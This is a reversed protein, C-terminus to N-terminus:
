GKVAGATLGSVIKRQFVLVLAVLPLTVIVSAAMINGWPIEFESRGSILAIAVPVTRQSDTSLFTLAFLFENWAHIFALLGTTVMAPWMLPLFVRRIITISSAGDMIAAEEIEVPLNRMFTTLVWVTFPLTFIMYSFVLSWLSNFLGFTRIVEFLGSLVAIQPFMSVSLVTLLLLGRGRFRIRSLAYAATVALALSLIVVVTAVFVSNLIQRGFVGETLMSRYNALNLSTPLYNVEFLAQGDELSTLIAYFFPFVAQLVIIAVLAYFGLSQLPTRKM